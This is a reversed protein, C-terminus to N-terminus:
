LYVCAKQRFASIFSVCRMNLSARALRNVQFSCRLKANTVTVIMPSTGAVNSCGLINSQSTELMIPRLDANVSVASAEIKAHRSLPAHIFSM